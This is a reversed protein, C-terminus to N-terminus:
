LVYFLIGTHHRLLFAAPIYWVLLLGLVLMWRLIHRVHFIHNYVVQESPCFVSSAFIYLHFNCIGFIIMCTPLNLIYLYCLCM